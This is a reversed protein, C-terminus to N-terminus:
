NGLAAALLQGGDRGFGRRTEGPLHLVHRGQLCLAARHRARLAADIIAEGEAIPVDRRKGDVIVAAMHAPPADPAVVRPPRPRGGLASVFREVHIRDTTVGLSELTPVIDDIM